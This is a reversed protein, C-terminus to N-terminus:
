VHDANLLHEVYRATGEEVTFFPEDYGAGRLASIDAETYSQYKGKLAAPFEIYGVIGVAQMEALTLAPKGELIRCANVAAVAVDNFSQCRGTGVNFIGAADPHDLFWLNVRVIDEISV